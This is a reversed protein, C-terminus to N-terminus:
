ADRVGAGYCEIFADVNGSLLLPWARAIQELPWDWWAIRELAAVQEPSFRCRVLRAPNGAWIEYAGVDQTIVTRAGICAGNGVTVGSLIMADLGIWVDNGIVVDGKNRITRAVSSPHSFIATMPYTTLWETRHEGGLVITAGDAISCFRGITLGGDNNNWKAIAPSGYTYEGIAYARYFPDDRTYKM